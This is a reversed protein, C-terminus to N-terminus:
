VTAYVDAPDKLEAPVYPPDSSYMQAVSVLDSGGLSILAAGLTPLGAPHSGEAIGIYYLCYAVASHDGLSCDSGRV